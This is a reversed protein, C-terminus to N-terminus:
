RHRSHELRKAAAAIQELTSAESISAIGAACATAPALANHGAIVHLPKGADACLAALTGVLKGRLSQDDIRGEGSIVADAAALRDEFHVQRLVFGAGPRLRAGFAGMLGGSLGGACGGMPVRRPDLPLTAAFEGLRRTLRVVAAAGAGKQPAFVRAADEYPTDVDCIVELRVGGRLRDGDVMGRDRLAEIAGRGGDSTASGGAAVLVTGAGAELAAAILEGTGYTDTREPDREEFALLPLGSAAAVEIVATDGDGLLGFEARLPRRLPDHADAEIRRGGRAALLVALTGEGGDAVPCPDAEAGAERIGRAM